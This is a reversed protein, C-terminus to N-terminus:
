KNVKILILDLDAAAAMLTWGFNNEVMALSAAYTNATVKASAAVVSAGIAIVGGATVKVVGDTCVPVMQGTLVTKLAIGICPQAAAPLKVKGAASLYVPVGKTIGGDAEFEKIIAGTEAIDGVALDTRGSLDAM